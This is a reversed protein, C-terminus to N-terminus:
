VPIGKEKVYVKWNVLREDDCNIFIAAGSCKKDKDHYARVSISNISITEGDPLIMEASPNDFIYLDNSDTKTATIKCYGVYTDYIDKKNNRDSESFICGESRFHIGRGFSASGDGGSVDIIDCLLKKDANDNLCLTVNFDGLRDKRDFYGPLRDPKEQNRIKPMLIKQYARVMQKTPFNKACSYITNLLIGMERKEDENYPRIKTTALVYTAIYEICRAKKAAKVFDDFVSLAAVPSLEALRAVAACFFKSLDKYDPNKSVCEALKKLIHDILGPHKVFLDINGAVEKCLATSVNRGQKLVFDIHNKWENLSSIRAKACVAGVKELTVNPQLMDNKLAGCYEDPSHLMHTFISYWASIMSVLLGKDGIKEADEMKERICQEFLMCFRGCRDKHVICDAVTQDIREPVINMFKTDSSKFFRLAPYAIQYRRYCIELADVEEESSQATRVEADLM